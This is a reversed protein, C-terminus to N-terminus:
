RILEFFSKKIPTSNQEESFVYYYTDNPLKKGDFDNKYPYIDYLIQGRRNLIILRSNPYEDLGTIFFVTNTVDNPTVIKPFHLNDPSFMTVQTINTFLDNQTVVRQWGEFTEVFLRQKAINTTEHPLIYKKMDTIDMQQSFTFTRSVSKYSGSITSRFVPTHWRYVILDYVDNLPSFEFGLARVERRAPIFRMPKEISGTSATVYAQHNEGLLDGNIVLRNTGINMVGSQMILDGGLTLASVRCEVNGAIRLSFLQFDQGTIKTERSNSIIVLSATDGIIKGDNHLDFNIMRVQTSKGINVVTNKSVTIASMSVSCVLLLLTIKAKM